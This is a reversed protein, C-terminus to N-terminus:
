ALHVKQRERWKSPTFGFERRFSTTLHSHNSFGLDVALRAIDSEGGSLRVM